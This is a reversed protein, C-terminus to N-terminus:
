LWEEPEVTSKSDETVKIKNYLVSDITAIACKRTETTWEGNRADAIVNKADDLADLVVERLNSDKIKEINEKYQEKM